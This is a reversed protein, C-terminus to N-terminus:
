HDDIDTDTSVHAFDLYILEKRSGWAIKSGQADELSSSPDCRQDPPIWCVRRNKSDLVWESTTYALRYLAHKLIVRPSENSSAVFKFPLRGKPSAIIDLKIPDSLLRTVLIGSGDEFFTIKIVGIFETWTLEALINGQRVDWLQVLWNEVVGLRDGDPSFCFRNLNSVPLDSIVSSVDWIRISKDPGFGCAILSSDPSFALCPLSGVQEPDLFLTDFHSFTSADWLVVEQKGSTATAMLRGNPSFSVAFPVKSGEQERHSGQRSGLRWVKVYGDQGGSVVFTGGSSSEVSSINYTHGVFRKIIIDLNLSRVLVSKGSGYVVHDGKSSFDFSKGLGNSSTEFCGLQDYTQADYIAIESKTSLGIKSGDPSWAVRYISRKARIIHLCDGTSADWIKMSSDVSGSLVKSGGNSWCVSTVLVTHAEITHKPSSDESIVEWIRVKGDETGSALLTGKPSFAISEVCNKRGGQFLVKCVGTQIDWVRIDGDNDGSAFLSGDASFTVSTARASGQFVSIVSGSAADSIHYRNELDGFAIMDDRRSIAIARVGFRVFPSLNVRITRICSEWQLDIGHIVNVESRLEHQYLTRTLSSLPCWLLGSHYVHQSSLKIV